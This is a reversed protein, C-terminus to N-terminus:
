RVGGAKYSINPTALSPDLGFIQTSKQRKTELWDRVEAEDWRVTRATLVLKSPFGPQNSIRSATRPSCGLM